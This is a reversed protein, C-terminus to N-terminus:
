FDNVDKPKLGLDINKKTAPNQRKPLSFKAVYKYICAVEGYNQVGWQSFNFQGGM